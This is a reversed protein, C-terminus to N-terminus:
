IFRYNDPIICYGVIEPQPSLKYDHIMSVEEVINEIFLDKYRVVIICGENKKLVRASCAYRLALASSKAFSISKLISNEPIAFGSKRIYSFNEVNTGHFFISKDREICEPFVQFDTDEPEKPFIYEKM